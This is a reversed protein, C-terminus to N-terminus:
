VPSDDSSRQVSMASRFADKGPSPGALEPFARRLRSIGEGPFNDPIIADPYRASIWLLFFSNFLSTEEVLEIHMIVAELLFFDTWDSNVELLNSQEGGAHNLFNRAETVMRVVFQLRDPRIHETQALGDKRRRKHDFLERLLAHAAGVLTHVAIPDADQFYLDVALHLQRTAADIKTLSHVTM